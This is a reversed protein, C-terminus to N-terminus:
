GIEIRQRVSRSASLSGDTNLKAQRKAKRLAMRLSKLGSRPPPAYSDAVLITVLRSIVSMGTQM